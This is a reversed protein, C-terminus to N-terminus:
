IQSHMSKNLTHKIGATEEKKKAHRHQTSAIENPDLHSSKKHSSVSRFRYYLM